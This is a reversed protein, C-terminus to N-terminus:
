PKVDSYTVKRYYVMSASGKLRRWAIHAHGAPDVAVTAIENDLSKDTSVQRPSRWAGTAEVATAYVIQMKGGVVQHWVGHLNGKKDLDLGTWSWKTSGSNIVKYKQWVGNKKRWYRVESGSKTTFLAHVDGGPAVVVQPWSHHQESLHTWKAFGSGTKYTYRPRTNAYSADDEEWVLHPTTGHVSIDPFRSDADKTTNTVNVPSSWKGSTANSYFVDTYAKDHWCVHPADNDDMAIQPYRGGGTSLDAIDVHSSWSSGACTAGNSFRTYVVAGGAGRFLVLHIRGKRDAQARTFKTGGAGTSVKKSATWGSADKCRYTFGSQGVISWAVVVKRATAAVTPFEAYGGPASWIKQEGCPACGGGCDMDTEGCDLRKNGCHNACPSDVPALKDTLLLDASSADPMNADVPHARVDAHGNGGLSGECGWGCALLLVWAVLLPGSCKMTDLIMVPWGPVGAM